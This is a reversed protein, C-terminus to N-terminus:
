KLIKILERKIKNEINQKLLVSKGMFPRATMRFSKKGYIKAMKGFQHVRAYPTDNTITVGKDKYRYGFSESLESTEGTLIKATTRTASFKGAQGSHGYWESDKDRRKVDDWKKVEKDTFGENEFSGKFHDVAETGIIDKIDDGETFERIERMKAQFLRNYENIDM